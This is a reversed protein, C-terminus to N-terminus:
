PHNQSQLQLFPPSAVITPVCCYDLVSACCWHCCCTTRGTQCRPCLGNINNTMYKNLTNLHRQEFCTMNMFEFVPRSKSGPAKYSGWNAAPQSQCVPESGPSDYERAPGATASHVWDTAPGTHSFSLVSNYNMHCYCCTYTESNRYM